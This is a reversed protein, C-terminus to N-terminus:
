FVELACLVLILGFTLTTSIMTSKANIAMGEEAKPFLDLSKAFASFAMKEQTHPFFFDFMVCNRTFFSTYLGTITLVVAFPAM